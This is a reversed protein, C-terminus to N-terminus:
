ARLLSFWRHSSWLGSYCALPPKLWWLNFSTVHVSVFWRRTIKNCTWKICDLTDTQHSAGLKSTNHETIVLSQFYRAQCANSSACMLLQKGKYIWEGHSSITIQWNGCFVIITLNSMSEGKQAGKLWSQLQLNIYRGNTTTCLTTESPLSAEDSQM